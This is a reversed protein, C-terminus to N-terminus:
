AKAKYASIATQSQLFNLKSMLDASGVIQKQAQLMISEHIAQTQMENALSVKNRLTVKKVDEGQNSGQQNNSYASSSSSRDKNASSIEFSFPNSKTRFENRAENMVDNKVVLASKQQANEFIVNKVSEIAGKDIARIINVGSLGMTM